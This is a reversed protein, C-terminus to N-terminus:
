RRFKGVVSSIKDIITSVVAWGVFSCFAFVLIPYLGKAIVTLFEILAIYDM